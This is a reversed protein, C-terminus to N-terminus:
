YYKQKKLQFPKKVKGLITAIKGDGVGGGSFVNIEAIIGLCQENATDGYHDKFNSKNLGSYITELTIYGRCLNAVTVALTLSSFSLEAYTLGIISV